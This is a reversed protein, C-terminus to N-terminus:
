QSSPLIVPEVPGTLRAEIKALGEETAQEIRGLPCLTAPGVPLQGLPWQHTRCQSMSVARSFVSRVDEPQTWSVIECKVTM